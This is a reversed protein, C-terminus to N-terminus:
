LAYPYSFGSGRRFRMSLGPLMLYCRAISSSRRVMVNESTPRVLPYGSSFAGPSLSEGSVLAPDSFLALFMANIFTVNRPLPVDVPTGVTPHVQAM